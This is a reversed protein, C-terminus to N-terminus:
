RGGDVPRPAGLARRRFFRRAPAAAIDPWIRAQEYTRDRHDDLYRWAKSKGTASGDFDVAADALCPANCTAPGTNSGDDDGGGGGGPGHADFLSQSCAACALVCLWGLRILVM